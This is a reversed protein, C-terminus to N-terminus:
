LVHGILQLAVILVLGLGLFLWDRGSMIHPNMTLLQGRYGRALMANYVKESREFSRVFLQGAMSGTVRARWFVTGGHKGDNVLRASRAERARLLRLAEDVLVFLYRYMFSIISILIMPVKLHRLAHMMDPFQTTATLLIAAQVSLWSRIVISVFRIVGADSITITRSGWMWSTLPEGPQTFIVTVAALAFPLAIFSRKFLYSFSFHATRNSVLLGLWAAAFAIWAGDPLLVNSVIFLLTLVVKVRPDLRHILSTGQQYRDFTSVHM